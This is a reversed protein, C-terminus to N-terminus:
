NQSLSQILKSKFAMGIASSIIICVFASPLYLFRENQTDSLSVSMTAVPILSILYSAILLAFLPWRYILSGKRILAIVIIICAVIALGTVFFLLPPSLLPSGGPLLTRISYKGINYLTQIQMVSLHQESGYGGIFNGLTVKRLGFYGALLIHAMVLIILSQHSPRVKESWWAYVYLMCWIFPFVIVSEKTLLALSFFLLVLVSALLSKKQLVFLFGLTAMFGFATAIVDTRGSIWSVSESHCPLAVFLCAALFSLMRRNQYAAKGLLDFSILYLAYAAIAHFILNTLHYGVPNLKWFKYDILYSLVTGPRLFGGRGEGWTYFMGQQTVRWILVFDDSLFYTPIVTLYCLAAFVCIASFVILERKFLM